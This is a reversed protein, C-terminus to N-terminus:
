ELIGPRMIDSYVPDGLWTMSKEWLSATFNESGLTQALFPTHQLIALRVRWQRDSALEKM